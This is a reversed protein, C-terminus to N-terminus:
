PNRQRQSPDTQQLFQYIRPRNTGLLRAAAAINGHTQELARQILLDEAQRLNLPLGATLAEPDLAAPGPPSPAPPQLFDLHEPRLDAGASKLLAREVINKLERVNGPFDYAELAALAEQSLPPPDVDMEAAFLGLFHRTLLPIDERRERLPPVHVPFRALRYYLDQRFRGSAIDSQLDRNTAALVRVDVRRGRAAGLPLVWGDELVRLLKAQIHPPMDGIEDLFLTGGDALDFCGTRDRDAGTFAGRAHGFLTSEALDAPIAACNVPIFPGSSRPSGYHIARAILEKGTGSEGSILVSTGTNQLLGIDRLIKDLTKSRGIFGAIGWREAELSSVLSLQEALHNREASLARRRAIEEQLEQNIRSLEINQRALERALRDIQLHTQVRALVEEAQFPKVIYDIGGARFGEVVSETEARATIFLVPIDRMVPDQKLRRCTEFGDMDPMLVDLLILDPRANRAIKLAAEGGSAVLIRYGEPELAQRLVKLNDPLDDVLLVRAARENIQVQNM